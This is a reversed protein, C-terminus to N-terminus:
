RGDPGATAVLEALNCRLKNRSRWRTTSRSGVNGGIGAREFEDRIVELRDAMSGVLVAGEETGDL